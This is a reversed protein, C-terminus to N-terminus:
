GIGRQKSGDLLDVKGFVGCFEAREQTKGAVVTPIDFIKWGDGVWQMGQGPFVREEVTAGLAWSAKLRRLVSRVVLWM